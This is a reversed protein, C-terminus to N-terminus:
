VGSGVIYNFNRKGMIPSPRPVCEIIMTGTNVCYASVGITDMELEDGGKEYSEEFDDDEFDDHDHIRTHSGRHIDIPKHFGITLQENILKQNVAKRLTDLDIKM